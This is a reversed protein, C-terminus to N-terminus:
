NVRYNIQGKGGPQTGMVSKPERKIQTQDWSMRRFCRLHFLSAVQQETIIAFVGSDPVLHSHVFLDQHKFHKGTRRFTNYERKGMKVQVSDGSGRDEPINLCEWDKIELLHPAVHMCSGHPHLLSPSGGNLIFVGFGLARCTPTCQADWSGGSDSSWWGACSPLESIEMLWLPLESAWWVGECHKLRVSFRVETRLGMVIVYMHQSSM